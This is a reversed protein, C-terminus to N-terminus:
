LNSFRNVRGILDPRERWFAKEGSIWVADNEGIEWNEHDAWYFLSDVKKFYADYIISDYRKPDDPNFNFQRLGQFMLEIVSPNEYQRQFLLTAAIIGDFSMALDKGVSERTVIHIERLCSDHFYGYMELLVEADRNNSIEIWNNM